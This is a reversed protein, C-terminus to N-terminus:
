YRLSLLCFCFCVQIQRQQESSFGWPLAGHGDSSLMFILHTDFKKLETNQYFSSLTECYAPKIYKYKVKYIQSENVNNQSCM